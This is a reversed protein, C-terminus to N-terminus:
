DQSKEISGASGISWFWERARELKMVVMRERIAERRTM